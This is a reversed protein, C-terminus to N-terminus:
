EYVSAENSTKRSEGSRFKLRRYIYKLQVITIIIWLKARSLFLKDGNYNQYDVPSMLKSAFMEMASFEFINRKLNLPTLHYSLFISLRLWGSSIQLLSNVTADRDGNNAEFVSKIVEKDMNPFM